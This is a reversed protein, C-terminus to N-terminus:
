RVEWVGKPQCAAWHALIALAHAANGPTAKWYNDDDEEPVRAQHVGHLYASMSILGTVTEAGTRGDLIQGLSDHPALAPRQIVREYAERFLKTYNYTVSIEGAASGGIPFTGGEQHEPVEVPKKDRGLLRVDWGM